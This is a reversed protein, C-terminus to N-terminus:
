GIKSVTKTSLTEDFGGYKRSFKTPTIGGKITVNFQNPPKDLLKITPLEFFDLM